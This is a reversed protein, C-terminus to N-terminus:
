RKQSADFVDRLAQATPPKVLYSHAGLAFAKEYDKKESSGTLVVIFLSNLDARQRIRELVEFGSLYPLKLDLFMISPLPYRARDAYDGTGALYDMAQQGDTVTQLSNNLGTKALAKKMIFADDENDEVLLITGPSEQM